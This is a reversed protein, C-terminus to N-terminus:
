GYPVETHKLFKKNCLLLILLTIICSIVPSVYDAILDWITANIWHSSTFYLYTGWVAIVGTFLVPITKIINSKGTRFLLAQVAISPIIRLILNMVDNWMAFPWLLLIIPIVAIFILLINITKKM